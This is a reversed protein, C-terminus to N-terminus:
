SVANFPITMYCRPVRLTTLAQLTQCWAEWTPKWDQPLPEDWNEPQCNDHHTVMSQLLFKGKVVVPTAFGLPDYM